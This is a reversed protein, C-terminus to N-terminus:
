YCYLKDEQWGFFYDAQGLLFGAFFNFGHSVSPKLLTAHGNGQWGWMFGDTVVWSHSNLKKKPLADACRSPKNSQM